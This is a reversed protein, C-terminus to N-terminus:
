QYVTADDDGPRGRLITWEGYQTFSGRDIYKMQLRYLADRYDNVAKIYLTLTTIIGSCDACPTTGQWTGLVVMSKTAAAIKAQQADQTQGFVVMSCALVICAFFNTPRITM